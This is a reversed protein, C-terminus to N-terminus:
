RAGVTELIHPAHVLPLEIAFQTGIGPTSEVAITGHHAVVIARAIYLGLGTGPIQRDRATSARFFREFLRRVELEHIGIGTDAIELRVRDDAETLRVTVTGGEPTFKIANGILNDLLQFMRGRDGDVSSVSDDVECRLTISQAAARPGAELVSQRVLGALDLDNITLRLEGAELRAVFLLDNVLHLLRDSNRQVVELYSREEDGIGDGELALEVYGMISTLPTRLDHSILAVFEDKLRDAEVLRDNQEALLRRATEAESRAAREEARLRGLTQILGGLRVLVFVAFVGAGAVIPYVDISDHLLHQALLVGPATLLIGALLATRVGTLRPQSGGRASLATMSPHLAAVGWLIYSFLWGNDLWSTSVYAYGSVANIEDAVVLLAISAFLYRYSTTRWAPSLFFVALGSLLVIDMAPYSLSVIEYSASGGARVQGHMVFVWQVLSFAGTIMAADILGARRDSVKFRLILLALGLALLPYGGLYFVDAASPVPPDRHLVEAYVNFIADGVSFCLLGGAFLLWPLRQAPRNRRAGWFVAAASSLGIADYVVSEGKSNWPLLFYLGVAATGLILYALWPQGLTRRM